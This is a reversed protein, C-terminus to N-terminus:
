ANQNTFESNSYKEEGKVYGGIGGGAVVGVSYKGAIVPVALLHYYHVAFVLTRCQPRM